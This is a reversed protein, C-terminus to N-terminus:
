GEVKGRTGPPPCNETVAPANFARCVSATFCPKCRRNETTWPGGPVPRSLTQPSWGVRSLHSNKPLKPIECQQKVLQKQKTVKPKGTKKFYIRRKWLNEAKGIEDPLVVNRTWRTVARVLRSSSGVKLLTLVRFNFGRLSATLMVSMGFCSNGSFRVLFELPIAMFRQHHRRKSFKSRRKSHRLALCMNRTKHDSIWSNNLESRLNWCVIEQIMASNMTFYIREDILFGDWFSMSWWRIWRVHVPLEEVM